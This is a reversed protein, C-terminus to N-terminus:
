RPPAAPSYWAQPPTASHRRRRAVVVAVGVLLVAAVVIVGLEIIGFPLASSGTGGTVTLVATTTATAGASDTVIVTVSYQGQSSPTCSLVATNSSVCGSPLGHYSYAYTGTGGAAEARLTATAGVQVTAPTVALSLTLPSSPAPQVVSLNASSTAAQGLNDTVSVTLSYNGPATPTCLLTAVDSTACGAPLGLYDFAYPSLGGTVNAWITISTGLTDPDPMVRFAGVTPTGYPSPGVTITQTATDWHGASDTATVTVAFTGTARPRCSFSTSNVSACGSPLGAYAYTISGTGGTVVVSLTTTNGLPFSAPTATFSSISPLSSSATVNISFYAGPATSPLARSRGYTDGANFYLALSGVSGTANAPLNGSYTGNQPSGSQLTLDVSSWTSLQPPRYVATVVPTLVDLAHVAVSVPSGGPWSTPFTPASLDPVMSAYPLVQWFDNALMAQGTVSPHFYDLHNVQDSTFAVSGLDWLTLNYTAAVQVEARNYARQTSSLMATGAQSLLAPCTQSYVAAAQSNGSFLTALISVNVVNALGIVTSSPLGSRLIQFSQNLSSWFSSLPTPTLTSGNHDCLDNGGILVTVFGSHNQVAERAQWIMDSARDGPVALLHPTISAPGYIVELRKWLSFVSTNWGVAYSYYPQIGLNAASGNADYAPTISDGLASYSVPNPLWPASARPTARTTLAISSATAGSLPGLSSLVLLGVALWLVTTRGPM